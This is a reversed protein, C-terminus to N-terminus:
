GKKKKCTRYLSLHMSYIRMVEPNIFNRSIKRQVVSPRIEREAANNDPLVDPNELYTFLCPEYKEFRTILREIDANAPGEDKVEQILAKLRSEAEAISIRRELPTYVSMDNGEKKWANKSFAIFKMAQNSAKESQVKIKELEERKKSPLPEPQIPPRGRSKPKSVVENKERAKLDDDIKLQKEAKDRKGLEKLSIKRLEEVVHQLCKQQKVDM